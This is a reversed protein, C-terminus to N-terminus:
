YGHGCALGSHGSNYGTYGCSGFTDCHGAEGYVGGCVLSCSTNCDCTDSWDFYASGVALASVKGFGIKKFGSFYFSQNLSGIANSIDNLETNVSIAVESLGVVVALVAVTAVLCLEATIIFGEEDIWFTRLM